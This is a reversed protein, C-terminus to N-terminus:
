RTWEIEGTFYVEEPLFIPMVFKRTSSCSTHIVKRLNLSYNRNVHSFKYKSGGGGGFLWFLQQEFLRKLGKREM